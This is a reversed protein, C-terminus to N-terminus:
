TGEIWEHDRTLADAVDRERLLKGAIEHFEKETIEDAYRRIQLQAHNLMYTRWIAASGTLTNNWNAIVFERIALERKLQAMNRWPAPKQAARCLRLSHNIWNKIEASM